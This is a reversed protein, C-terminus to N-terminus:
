RLAAVLARWGALAIGVTLFTVVVFSTPASGRFYTSDRLAAGILDAGLWALLAVAGARAATWDSRDAYAGLLPAAIAWGILFPAVNEAVRGPESAPDVGHSMSGVTLVAAIVIADGIAVAVTGPSPDIRGFPVLERVAM